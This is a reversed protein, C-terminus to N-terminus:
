YTKHQLRIVDDANKKGMLIDNFLVDIENQLLKKQKTLDTLKNIDYKLFHSKLNSTYLKDILNGLTDM